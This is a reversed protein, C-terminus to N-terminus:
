KWAQPVFLEEFLGIAYIDTMGAIYDCVVREISEGRLEMMLSYEEPLEQPHAMYYHFLDALMRKAKHDERKPLPNLYLNEFMYVRLAKM